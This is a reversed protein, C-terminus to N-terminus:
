YILFGGGADEHWSAKGRLKAANKGKVNKEGEKRGEKWFQDQVTPGVGWMWCCLGFYNNLEKSAINKLFKTAKKCLNILLIM